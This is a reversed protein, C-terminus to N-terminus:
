KGKKKCVEKLRENLQDCGCIGDALYVIGNSHESVRGAEYCQELTLGKFIYDFNEVLPFLKDWCKQLYYSDRGTERWKKLYELVDKKTEVKVPGRLTAVRIVLTAFSIMHPSMMWQKPGTILWVGKKITEHRVTAITSLKWGAAKEFINLMKKAAFLKEKYSDLDGRSTGVLLRLRKMDIPPNSGKKYHGSIDKGNVHGGVADHIYAKCGMFQIIQRRGDKPPSVLSFAVEGANLTGKEAYPSDLARIKIKAM